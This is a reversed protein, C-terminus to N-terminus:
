SNAQQTYFYKLNDEETKAIAHNENDAMWLEIKPNNTITNIMFIEAESKNSFVIYPSNKGQYKDLHMNLVALSNNEDRKYATVVVQDKILKPYPFESHESLPLEDHVNVSINSTYVWGNEIAYLILKRIYASTITFKESLVRTGSRMGNSDYGVLYNARQEIFASISNKSKVHLIEIGYGYGIPLSEGLKWAYIIGNVVIRRYKKRLQKPLIFKSM